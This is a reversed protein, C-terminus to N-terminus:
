DRKIQNRDPKHGTPVVENPTAPRTRWAGTHDRYITHHDAHLQHHCSPCLLVLKDLDTTGKAPANWPVIHHAHCRSHDAGCLACGRDRLILAVMQASSAHRKLRSLWLPEGNRDFLAAFIDAHEAYDALVSDPILGLGIQTAAEAPDLGLFKDVTLGIV